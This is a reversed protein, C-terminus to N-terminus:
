MMRRDLELNTSAMADSQLLGGSTQIGKATALLVRMGNEWVATNKQSINYVLTYVIAQIIAELSSVTCGASFVAEVIAQVLFIAQVFM